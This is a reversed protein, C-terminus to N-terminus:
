SVKCLQLIPGSFTCSPPYDRGSLYWPLDNNTLNHPSLTDKIQSGTRTPKLTLQLRILVFSVFTLEKNQLHEKRRFENRRMETEHDNQKSM